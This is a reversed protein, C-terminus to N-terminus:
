DRVNFNDFSFNKIKIHESFVVKEMNEVTKPSLWTKLQDIHSSNGEIKGKLAGKKSLMIYGRLGLRRAEDSINKRAPSNPSFKGNIEFNCSFILDSAM